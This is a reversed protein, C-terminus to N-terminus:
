SIKRCCDRIFPLSMCQMARFTPFKDRIHNMCLSIYIFLLTYFTIRILRKSFSTLSFLLSSTFFRSRLSSDNLSVAITNLSSKLFFFWWCATGFYWWHTDERRIHDWRGYECHAQGQGTSSHRWWFLFRRNQPQLWLQASIHWDPLFM